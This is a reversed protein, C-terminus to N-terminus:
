VRLNLSSYRIKRTRKYTTWGFFTVFLAAIGGIGGWLAVLREATWPQWKPLQDKYNQGSAM